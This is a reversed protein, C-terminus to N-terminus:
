WLAKGRREMQHCLLFLRPSTKLYHSRLKFLSMIDIDEDLFHAAWLGLCLTKIHPVDLKLLSYRKTDVRKLPNLVVGWNAKKLNLTPRPWHCPHTGLHPLRENWDCWVNQVEQTILRVSHFTNLFYGLFPECHGVRKPYCLIDKWTAKGENYTPISNLGM